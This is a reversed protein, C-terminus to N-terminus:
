KGGAEKVEENEASKEKVIMISYYSLDDPIEDLSHYIKEGEMGCREVAKASYGKEKLYDRVRAAEKGAKMLVKTGPLLLGEEVSYSAPILHLMEDKEVLGEDLAVSVALFSPIGSVLRAPYGAEEVRKHVYLYTSYICPDGLTLYAAKKGQRLVEIIQEAAAEHAERRRDEDKTMPMPLGVAEKEQIEPVAGAAIRYAVSEEATKGPAFIVDSERIIRAAQLTMLEPDGPGVGVGYLIGKM